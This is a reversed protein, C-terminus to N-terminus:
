RKNPHHKKTRLRLKFMKKELFGVSVQCFFLADWDFTGKIKLYFYFVCKENEGVYESNRKVIKRRKEPLKM